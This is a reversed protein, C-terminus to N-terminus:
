STNELTEHRGRNLENALRVRKPTRWIDIGEVAGDDGWEDENKSAKAETFTPSAVHLQVRTQQDCHPASPLATHNAKLLKQQQQESAKGVYLHEVFTILILYLAADPSKPNSNKLTNRQNSCM